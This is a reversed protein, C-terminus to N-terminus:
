GNEAVPWAGSPAVVTTLGKNAVDGTGGPEQTTVASKGAPPM